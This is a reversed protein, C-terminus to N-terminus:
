DEEVDVCEYVAKKFFCDLLDTFSEFVVVGNEAVDEGCSCDFAEEEDLWIVKGSNVDLWILGTEDFEEIHANGYLDFKGIPIYGWSLFERNSDFLEDLKDLESNYAQAPLQLTVEVGDEFLFNDLVGSLDGILYAYTSTFQGDGLPLPSRLYQHIQKLLKINLNGGM